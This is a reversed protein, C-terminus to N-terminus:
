YRMTIQLHPLLTTSRRQWWMVGNSLVKQVQITHVACGYRMKAQVWEDTKESPSNSEAGKEESLPFTAVELRQIETDDSADNISIPVTVMSLQQRLAADCRTHLMRGLWMVDRTQLIRSTEPCYMLFVNATHDESYGVFVMIIGGDLVKGKKCDKVIGAKSFTCLNKTWAPVKYGAQGWCSITVDGITVPMLNKLNPATVVAEPWLKFRETNPIWGAILM